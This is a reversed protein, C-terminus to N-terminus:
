TGHYPEGNVGHLAYLYEKDASVRGNGDIEVGISHEVMKRLVMAGDWLDWQLSPYEIASEGHAAKVQADLAQADLLDWAEKTTWFELEADRSLDGLIVLRAGLIYHGDTRHEKSIYDGRLAAGRMRAAFAFTKSPVGTDVEGSWYQKVQVFYTTPIEIIERPGRASYGHMDIMTEARETQEPRKVLILQEVGLDVGARDLHGSAITVAGDELGHEKVLLDRVLHEFPTGDINGKDRKRKLMIDRLLILESNPHNGKANPALHGWREADNEWDEYSHVKFYPELNNWTVTAQERGHATCTWKDRQKSTRFGLERILAFRGFSMARLAHELRYRFLSRNPEKGWPPATYPRTYSEPVNLGDLALQALVDRELEDKTISDDESKPMLDLVVSCLQQDTLRFETHQFPASHDHSSRNANTTSDSKAPAVAAQENRENRAPMLNEKETIRELKPNGRYSGNGKKPLSNFDFRDLSDRLDQETAEAGAELLRWQKTTQEQEILGLEDLIDRMTACRAKYELERSNQRTTLLEERVTRSLRMGRALESSIANNPHWEESTGDQLSRIAQLTAWAWEQPDYQWEDEEANGSQRPSHEKENKEVKEKVTSESIERGLSTLQLGHRDRLIAKAQHILANHGRRMGYEYPSRPEPSKRQREPANPSIELKKAVLELTEKESASGAAQERLVQVTM